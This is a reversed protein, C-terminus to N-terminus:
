GKREWRGAEDQRWYTVEHGAAKLATWRGRASAVADEDHGDFLFVARQYASPDDLDAGDVLFRVSAGNPNTAATTLVIPQDAADREGAPGHPLFSEDDYTWLHADLAAVREDSAAQVVVRWGRELCKALLPPLVQELTRRQLHYFLVETM